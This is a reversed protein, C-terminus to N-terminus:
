DLRIRARTDPDSPIYEREVPVILQTIRTPTINSRQENVFSTLDIIELIEKKGYDILMWGRLGLQIARRELSAGNPHHDPDWQMRVSSTAVAREWEEPSNIVSNTLSSEVAQALIREFFQRRIRIALTVEQGPKTGWGSRYMMWLFNPKIWSMRSYSFNGGFCGHKIAYQGIDPRFAQYVIVSEAEAQALIHRGSGPWLNVQDVYKETMLM